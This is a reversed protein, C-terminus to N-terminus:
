VHRAYRFYKIFSASLIRTLSSTVKTLTSRLTTLYKLQRGPPELALTIDHLTIYSLISQLTFTARQGRLYQNYLTNYTAEEGESEKIVAQTEIKM